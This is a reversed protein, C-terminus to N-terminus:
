KAAEKKREVLTVDITDGFTKGINKRITKPVGIIWGSTGMRVVQGDYSVGDFTAHVLLRGKGCRERIDFPVDIYAADMGENQRLVAQFVMPEEAACDAAAADILEDAIEFARVRRKALTIQSRVKAPDPKKELTEIVARLKHLTSDIQRKAEALEEHTYAM